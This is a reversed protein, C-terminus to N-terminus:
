NKSVENKYKILYIKYTDNILIRYNHNLSFFFQM